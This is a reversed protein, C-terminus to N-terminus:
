SFYFTIATFIFVIFKNRSTINISVPQVLMVVASFSLLRLSSSRIAPSYHGALSLAPPLLCIFSFVFLIKDLLPANIRTILFTRTFLCVGLASLSVFVPMSYNNWWVMNPWLYEYASGSMVAQFMGFNVIFVLYTLYNKDRLILLMLTSYVVMLLIFGYYIGYGFQANHDKANFAKTTWITLPINM